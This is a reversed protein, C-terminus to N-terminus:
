VEFKSGSSADKKGKSSAWNVASHIIPTDRLIPGIVPLTQLYSFITKLFSRFMLFMGWVQCTFGILTFFPYGLIIFTLGGFFFLSGQMKKQFFQLSYAPGVLAVMGMLFSINGIALFGRDLFMMVGIILFALGLVILGVGIKKNDDYFM